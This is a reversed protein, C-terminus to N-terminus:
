VRSWLQVAEIPVLIVVQGQVEFEEVAWPAKVNEGKVFIKDGSCILHDGNSVDFVVDLELLQNKQKVTAFGKTVQAEIGKREIPKCPVKGNFGRIGM